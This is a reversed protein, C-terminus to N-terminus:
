LTPSCIVAIARYIARRFNTFLIVGQSIFEPIEVYHIVEYMLITMRSPSSTLGLDTPTIILQKFIVFCVQIFNNM